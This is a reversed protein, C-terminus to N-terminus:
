RMVAEALRELEEVNTSWGSKTKTKKGTPLKMKDFLIEGLQKPSNINFPEPALGCIAAELTAMERGFRESLEALLPLDLRVGTLEMEALIAVLPMELKM